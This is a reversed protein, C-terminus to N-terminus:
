KYVLQLFSAYEPLRLKYVLQMFSAYEPLLLEYVLQLFSAYEPLLFAGELFQKTFVERSHGGHCRQLVVHLM